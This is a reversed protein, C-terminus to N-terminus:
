ESGDPHSSPPEERKAPLTALGNSLWIQWLAVRRYERCTKKATGLCNRLIRDTSTRLFIRKAGFDFM